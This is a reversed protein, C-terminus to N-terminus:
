TLVSKRAASPQADPRRLYLPDPEVIEVVGEVVAAALHAASPFEPELIAAFADPYLRAGSGAAPLTSGGTAASVGSAVGVAPGLVRAGAANYEAWYVERRRADTAVVFRGDPAGAARAGYAIVDLSCVGHVPVGLAAGLVRAAALGVRLGTFPGPGVGVAVASVLARDVGAAEFVKVVNPMLLETHRRPDVETSEALVRVGDHLAVTVAPTSTDLALLLM